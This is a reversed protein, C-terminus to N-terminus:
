RTPINGLPAIAVRPTTRASPWTAPPRTPVAGSSAPETPQRIRGAVFTTTAARQDALQPRPGFRATTGPLTKPRGLGVNSTLYPRAAAKKHPQTQRSVTPRGLLTQRNAVLAPQGEFVSKTQYTLSVSLGRQQNAPVRLYVDLDSPSRPQDRAPTPESRPKPEMPKPVVPQPAPQTVLNQPRARQQCQECTQHNDTSYQDANYGGYAYSAAVQHEHAASTADFHEYYSPGHQGTSQISNQWLNKPPLNALPRARSCDCAHYGDGWGAGLLRGVREVTGWGSQRGRSVDQGEVVAPYRGGHQAHVATCCLLGATAMLAFQFSSQRNMTPVIQPFRNRPFRFPM